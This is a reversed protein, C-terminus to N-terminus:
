DCYRGSWQTKGAHAPIIGERGVRRGITSLKGRTLPSSGQFFEGLTDNHSNEGRSRPHDRSQSCSLTPTPTKGAHAPIIGSEDPRGREQFRKGRTLPSSGAGHADATQEM